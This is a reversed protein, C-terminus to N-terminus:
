LHTARNFVPREHRLYRKRFRMRLSTGRSDFLRLNAHLRQMRLVPNWVRPIPLAKLGQFPFQSIFQDAPKLERSKNTAKAEKGMIM